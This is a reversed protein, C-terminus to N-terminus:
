YLLLPLDPFAIIQSTRPVLYLCKNKTDFDILKDRTEIIGGGRSPDIQAM